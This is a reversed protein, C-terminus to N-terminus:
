FRSKCVKQDDNKNIMDFISEHTVRGEMPGFSQTNLAAAASAIMISDEITRNSLISSIFAGDFCDGAGTTDVPIIPYTGFEYTYGDKTFVKCGRSGMKLAIIELNPNMFAKKIAAEISTEDTIFMLEEEGPLIISSLSTITDIAEKQGSNDKVLEKRINPDFSVKAGKKFLENVLAIIEDRFKESAMLSCGMVHVYSVDTLEDYDPSLFDSAASNGIHYLFKRSGDEFYTVFAVGTSYEKSKNVNACNVGDSKLRDLIFKGFDDDGVAGIIVAEHGLRGVTDIFIAPAGSPYPGHFVGPESLPTGVDPRMIEALIEGLIVVKAM